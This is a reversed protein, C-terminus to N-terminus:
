VGDKRKALALTAQNKQYARDLAVNRPGNSMRAQHLIADQTMELAEVLAAHSNVARVIFAANATADNMGSTFPDLRFIGRRPSDLMFSQDRHQKSIRWPTPTHM